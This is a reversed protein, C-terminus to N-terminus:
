KTTRMTKSTSVICITCLSSFEERKLAFYLSIAGGEPLLEAGAPTNVVAASSCGQGAYCNPLQSKHFAKQQDSFIGMM